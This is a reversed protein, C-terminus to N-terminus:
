NESQDANHIISKIYYSELTNLKESQYVEDLPNLVSISPQMIEFQITNIQTPTSIISISTIDKLKSTTELKSEVLTLQPLQAETTTEASTNTTTPTITPSTNTTADTATTDTQSQTSKFRFTSNVKRMKYRTTNANQDAHNQTGSDTTTGAENQNAQYQQKLQDYYSSLHGIM